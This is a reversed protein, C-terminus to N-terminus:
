GANVSKFFEVAEPYSSCEKRKGDKSQCMVAGSSHSLFWDAAAAQDYVTDM